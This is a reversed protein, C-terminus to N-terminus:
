KVGLFVWGGSVHISGNNADGDDMSTDIDTLEQPSFGPNYVGVLGTYGWIETPAFNWWYWYGGGPSTGTWTSKKPLYSTMGTPIASFGSATPPLTRREAVYLQFADYTVRLENMLATTRSRQRARQFSPIAMVALLAIIAAVIMIEILTFGEGTRHLKSTKSRM